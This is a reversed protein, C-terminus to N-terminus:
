RERSRRNPLRRKPTIKPAAFIAGGAELKEQTLSGGLSPYIPRGDESVGVPTLGEVVGYGPPFNRAPESPSQERLPNLAVVSEGIVQDTNLEQYNPGSRALSPNIESLPTHRPLIGFEELNHAEHDKMWDDSREIHPEREENIRTM